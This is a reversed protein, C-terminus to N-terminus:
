APRYDPAQNELTLERLDAVVIDAGHGLLDAAHAGRGIGVVLGFGGARGAEVGVLADEFVIARAPRTNLRKAAEFYMDPAPKGLLSFRRRDIGDVRVDFLQTLGATEIIAACNQSSSVVATRVGRRRADQIFSTAGDFVEVGHEALACIFYRNKRAGLANLTEADPQDDPSGPPLTVGRAALFMRVGEERPRGDVYKQYDEIPDFPIFAVGKARAHHELYDDFLRKWAAAHVKATRTVVGDLDFLFAEFERVDIRNSPTTV